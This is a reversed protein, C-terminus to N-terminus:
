TREILHSESVWDFFINKQTGLNNRYMILYETGNFWTKRKRGLTIAKFAVGPVIEFWFMQKKGTTGASLFSWHNINENKKM